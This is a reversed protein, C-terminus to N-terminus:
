CEEKKDTESKKEVTVANKICKKFKSYGGFYKEAIAMALGKEKDFRDRESCKVVTKEGNSWYVITAPDHFIVKKIDARIIYKVVAFNDELTSVDISILDDVIM